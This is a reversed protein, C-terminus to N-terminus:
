APTGSISNGGSNFAFKVFIPIGDFITLEKLGEDGSPPLQRCSLGLIEQLSWAEKNVVTIQSRLIIIMLVIFKKFPNAIQKQFCGESEESKLQPVPVIALM